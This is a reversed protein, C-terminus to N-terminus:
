AGRQHMTVARALRGWYGWHVVSTCQPKIPFVQALPTRM